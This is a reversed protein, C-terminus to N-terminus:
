LDEVKLLIFFYIRSHKSHPSAQMSEHSSYANTGWITTSHSSTTTPFPGPKCFYTQPYVKFIIPVKPKWRFLMKAEQNALMHIIRVAHEQGWPGPLEVWKAMEAM